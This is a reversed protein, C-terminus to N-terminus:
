AFRVIKKWQGPGNGEFQPRLGEGDGSASEDGGVRTVLDPVPPFWGRRVPWGGEPRRAIGTAWGTATVVATVARM